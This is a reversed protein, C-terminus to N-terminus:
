LIRVGCLWWRDRCYLEVFPGKWTWWAREGARFGMAWLPSVPIPEFMWIGGRAFDDAMLPGTFFTWMIFFSLNFVVRLKQPLKKGIFTSIVIGLFQLQFFLLPRLPNTAAFQTFSGSAHMIGSIFFCIWSTLLKANWSQVDWGLMNRCVAHALTVWGTRFIQHWHVGWAGALGRNAVPAWPGNYPPNLWIEGAHYIGMLPLITMAFLHATAFVYHLAIYGGLGSIFTRYTRTAFASGTIFAPFHSPPPSEVFGWFYPDQMMVTKLIDVIAYSIIYQKLCSRIRSQRYEKEAAAAMLVEGDEAEGTDWRASIPVDLVPTSIKGAVYRWNWGLARFNSLLDFAWHMRAGLHAPLVEWRAHVTDGKEQGNDQTETLRNIRKWVMRKDSEGFIVLTWVIGWTASLGIVYGNALTESRAHLLTEISLAGILAVASWRIGDSLKLWPPLCLLAYLVYLSLFDFPWIWPRYAGSAIAAEFNAHRAALFELYNTPGAALTTSSM